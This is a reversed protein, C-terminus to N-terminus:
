WRWVQCICDILLYDNIIPMVFHLGIHVRHCSSPLCQGQPWFNPPWPWVTVFITVSAGRNNHTPWSSRSHTCAAAPTVSCKAHRNCRNRCTTRFFLQAMINKARVKGFAPRNEFSKWQCVWCYIELLSIPLFQPTTLNSISALKIRIYCCNIASDSLSSM